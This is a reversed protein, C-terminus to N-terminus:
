RRGETREVGGSAISGSASAKTVDAVRNSCNGFSRTYSSSVTFVAVLGLVSVLAEAEIVLIDLTAELHM